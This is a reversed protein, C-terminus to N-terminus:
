SPKSRFYQAPWRIPLSRPGNAPLTKLMHEMKENYLATDLVNSSSSSATVDGNVPQIGGTDKISVSEAHASDQSLCSALSSMVLVLTSLIVVPSKM